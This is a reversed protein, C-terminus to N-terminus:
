RKRETALRGMLRNQEAYLAEVRMMEERQARQRREMAELHANRLQSNVDISSVSQSASIGTSYSSETAQTSTMSLSPAANAWERGNLDAYANNGYHGQLLPAGPAWLVEDEIPSHGRSDAPSAPDLRLRKALSTLTPSSVPENHSTLHQNSRSHSFVPLSSDPQDEEAAYARKLKSLRLLLLSALHFDGRVNHRPHCLLPSVCAAGELAESAKSLKTVSSQHDM